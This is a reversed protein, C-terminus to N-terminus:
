ALNSPITQAFEHYAVVWSEYGRARAERDLLRKLREDADAGWPPPDASMAMDLLLRYADDSTETGDMAAAALALSAHVAACAVNHRSAEAHASDVGDRARLSRGLELLREAEAFHDAAKM